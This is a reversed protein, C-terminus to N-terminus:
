PRSDNNTEYLLKQLRRVADDAAKMADSTFWYQRGNNARVEEVYVRFWLDKLETETM